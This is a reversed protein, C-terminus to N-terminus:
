KGEKIEAVMDTMYDPLSTVAPSKDWLISVLIYAICLSEFNDYLRSLDITCSIIVVVSSTLLYLVTPPKQFGNKAVKQVVKAIITYTLIGSGFALLLKPVAEKPIIRFLGEFESQIIASVM